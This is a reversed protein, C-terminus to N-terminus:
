LTNYAKNWDNGRKRELEKPVTLLADNQKVTEYEQVETRATKYEALLQEREATLRALETKM